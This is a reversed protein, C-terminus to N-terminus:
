EDTKETVTAELQEEMEERVSIWGLELDREKLMEKLESVTMSEYDETM